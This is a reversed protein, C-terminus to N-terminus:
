PLYEKPLPENPLEGVISVHNIWWRTGDWFLEINDIGHDTVPGEPTRRAESTSIVHAWSGYRYTVRHIEHEYFGNKVQIPDAMDAFEQYSLQQVVPKGNEDDILVIRVDPVYLTRDRAWQRAQGAPGSGTEYYAKMIGDLTSVDGPRAAVSAIKVHNTVPSSPNQAPSVRFLCATILLGTVFAGLRRM